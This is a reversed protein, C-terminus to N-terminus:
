HPMSCIIQGHSDTWPTGDPYLVPTWGPGHLAVCQQAPTLTSTTDDITIVVTTPTGLELRSIGAATLALTVTEDTTDTDGCATLTVSASTTATFTFTTSTLSYDDGTACSGTRGVAGSATFRVSGPSVPTQDLTATVQVSSGETVTLSTVPLSVAPDDDDLIRGTATTSTGLIAGNPASLVLQLTEDLEVDSDYTTFVRVDVSTSGASITATRSHALFDDGAIATVGVATAHVTVDSSSAASLSVAFVLALGERVDAAATVSVEVPLECETSAQVQVGVGVGPVGHPWIVAHYIGASPATATMSTASGFGFYLEGTSGWAVPNSSLQTQYESAGDAPPDWSANLTFVGGSSTCEFVVNTPVAPAAPDDDRITATATPSAALNANSPNSLSLTFTEDPEDATDDTVTVSVIATTRSAPITVTRTAVSAYDSGATATGDSTAVDVTVASTAAASLTITFDAAGDDEDVTQGAVSLEPLTGPVTTTTTSTPRRTTTPPTTGCPGLDVNNHAPLSPDIVGHKVPGSSPSITGNHPTWTGCYPVWNSPPSLPHSHCSRGHRHKGSQCGFTASSRNYHGYPGSSNNGLHSWGAGPSNCRASQSPQDCPGTTTILRCQGTYLDCVGTGDTSPRQWFSTISYHYHDLVYCNYTGFDATWTSNNCEPISPENHAAAIPPEPEAVAALASVRRITPRGM